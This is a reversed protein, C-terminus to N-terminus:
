RARVAAVVDEVRVRVVDVLAGEEVVAALVAVPLLGAMACLAAAAEPPAPHAAVGGARVLMPVVHGPRTLDDPTTLPDALARITLARDHASIGTTVGAKRDVAVAFAPCDPFDPLLLPIRLARLREADLTVCAYGSTHRVLFAMASTTLREAALVLETHTADQVIVPEGRDLATLARMLGAPAATIAAM